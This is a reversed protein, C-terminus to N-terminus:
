ATFRRALEAAIAERAATIELGRETTLSVGVILPEALHLLPFDAVWARFLRRDRRRLVMEGEWPEGSQLRRLIAEADERSQVAPTLQVIDRGLAESAQWGYLTVAGANWFVVRGALDTVIVAADRPGPFADSLTEAILDGGDRHALAFHNM